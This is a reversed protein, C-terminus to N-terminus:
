DKIWMARGLMFVIALGIAVNVLLLPAPSAHSLHFTPRVHLNWGAAKVLFYLTRVTYAILLVRMLRLTRKVSRPRHWLRPAVLLAAGFLLVFGLRTLYWGPSILAVSGASVTLSVQATGGLFYVVGAQFVRQAQAPARTALSTM